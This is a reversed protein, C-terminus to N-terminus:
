AHSAVSFRVAYHDSVDDLETRVSGELEIGLAAPVEAEGGLPEFVFARDFRASVLGALWRYSVELEARPRVGLTRALEAYQEGDGENTDGIVVLQRPADPGRRRTTVWSALEAAQALRGAHSGDIESAFHLNIHVVGVGLEMAQWAKPRVEGLSKTEREFLVRIPQTSFSCLGSRAFGTTHVLGVERLREALVDFGSEEFVEQLHVTSFAAARHHAILAAAVRGAARTTAECFVLRHARFLWRLHTPLLCANLSVVDM